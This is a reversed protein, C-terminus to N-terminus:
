GELPHSPIKQSRAEYPQSMDQLIVDLCEVDIAIAGDGSFTLHLVGAGDDGEKFTVNLLELVVSKDRPDVGQGKVALVGGVVLMSQVREFPRQQSKADEVDEWRFRNLLLAFRHKKRMWSMDSTQAVADQVLTSIVELDDTGEAKLRIPKEIAGDEFKADAM